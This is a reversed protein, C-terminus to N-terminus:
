RYVLADDLTDLWAPPRGLPNWRLDLKALPLRAIAEPLTDLRNARLDLVRLRALAGIADPLAALANDRLHLERLEALGAIADPLTALGSSEARLERLAPDIPLAALPNGSVNLYRVGALVPPAVLQNSALYAFDLGELRPVDVLRNRNADLVRLGPPLAPLHALQNDYIYLERVSAPVPPLEVLANGGVDLREIRDLAGLEPVAALGCRHASVAVVRGDRELVGIAGTIRERAHALQVLERGTATALQEVLRRESPNM